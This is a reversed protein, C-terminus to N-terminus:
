RVSAIQQFVIEVQTWLEYLAKQQEEAGKNKCVALWCVLSFLIGHAMAELFGSIFKHKVRDVTHKEVCHECWRFQQSTSSAFDM